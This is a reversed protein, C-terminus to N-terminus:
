DVVMIPPESCYRDMFFDLTAWDNSYVSPENRPKGVGFVIVFCYSNAAAGDCVAYCRPAEANDPSVAGSLSLTLSLLLTSLMANEFPHTCRVSTIPYSYFVKPTSTLNKQHPLELPEGRDM